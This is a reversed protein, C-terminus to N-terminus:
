KRAPEPSIKRYDKPASFLDESLDRRELKKVELVEMAGLGYSITYDKVLLPFGYPKLKEYIERGEKMEAKFGKTFGTAVKEMIREVEKMDVERTMWNEEILEGDARVEVKETSFGNIIATDGTKRVTIKRQKSKVGLGSQRLRKAIEKEWLSFKVDVYSKSPHDVLVIRDRGFDIITTQGSEPHDTRFRDGSFFLVVKSLRGESDKVGQEIVVGALGESSLFTFFVLILSGSIASIMMKKM